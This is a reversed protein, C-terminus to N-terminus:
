YGFRREYEKHTMWEIVTAITTLEYRGISYTLRYGEPLNYKWLNKIGYKDIYIKPILKKPIAIGCFVDQEINNLATTIWGYLKKDESKTSTALKQFAVKVNEDAFFIQAKLKEM